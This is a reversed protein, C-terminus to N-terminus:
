PPATDCIPPLDNDALRPPRPEALRPPPPEALGPPEIQVVALRQQGFRVCIAAQGVPLHALEDPSILFAERSRLLRRVIPGAPGLHIQRVIETGTRKNLSINTILIKLPAM